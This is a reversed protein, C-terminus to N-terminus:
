RESEAVQVIGAQRQRDKTGVEAGNEVLVGLSQVASAEV